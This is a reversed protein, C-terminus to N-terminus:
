LDSNQKILRDYISKSFAQPSFNATYAAAARDFTTLSISGADLPLAESEWDLYATALGNIVEVLAEALTHPRDEVARGLGNSIYRLNSNAYTIPICGSAIAEVVPMGFGEHYSGSLFIHSEGYIKSLKDDDVDNFIEVSERLNLQEITSNVAKIYGGDSLNANGILKLRVRQSISKRAFAFEELMRVIGKSPVFRGVYVIQFFDHAKGALAARNSKSSGLPIVCIKNDNVGINLLTRRNEESDCWIEDCEYFNAIQDFSKRILQESEKSSFEIPTINHFRVVQLAHGNGVLISEFLPSYIAFFYIIINASLFSPHLLLDSLGDVRTAPINIECKRCLIEVEFESTDVLAQYTQLVTSGVADRDFISPAILIIRKKNKNM